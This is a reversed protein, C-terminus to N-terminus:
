RRNRGVLEVIYAKSAAYKKQDAATKPRWKRSAMKPEGGPPLSSGVDAPPMGGAEAPAGGEAGLQGSEAAMVLEEPSIGTEALIQELMALDEPSVEEGGASPDAGAEPPMGGGEGGMEEAGPAGMQEGQLLMQLLAQEDMGGGANPQPAGGEVPAEEAVAEDAARKHAAQTFFGHLYEATKEAVSEANLITEAIGDAIMQDFAQKDFQPNADVAAGAVDYGEQAAPAAAQKNAPAAASQAPTSAPGSSAAAAHKTSDSAEVAIMAVIDNGLAAARKTLAALEESASAYKGGGLADNDTRAPHDSGPDDKGAKGSETEHATDEGTAKTTVGVAMQVSDQGGPTGPATSDVGAAGQDEKVDSSNESSRAGESATTTGDDVSKIPHATEGGVSGAETNAEARKQSANLSQLLDDISEIMSAKKTRQANM